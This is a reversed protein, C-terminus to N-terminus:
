GKGPRPRKLIHQNIKGNDAILGEGYPDNSDFRYPLGIARGM